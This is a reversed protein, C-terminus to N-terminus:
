IVWNMNTAYKGEAERRRAGMDEIKQIKCKRKFVSEFSLDAFISRLIKDTSLAQNHM